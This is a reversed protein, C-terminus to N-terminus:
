HASIARPLTAVWISKKNSGAIPQKLLIENSDRSWEISANAMQSGMPTMQIINVNVQASRWILVHFVGQSDSFAIKQGDPSWEIVRGGGRTTLRRGLDSGDTGTVWVGQNEGTINVALLEGDPSWTAAMNTARIAPTLSRSNEGNASVVVVEGVKSNGSGWTRFYAIQTGDPSWVLNDKNDGSFTVRRYNGAMDVVMIDTGGFRDTLFAIENRSSWVPNYAWNIGESKEGAGEPTLNRQGSRGEVWITNRGGVNQTYAIYDRNHSWVGVASYTGASMRNDGNVQVEFAQIVGNNQALYLLSNDRSGWTANLVGELLHTLTVTSTPNNAAVVTPETIIVPNAEIESDSPRIPVNPEERNNTLEDLVDENNGIVGGGDDNGNTIDSYPLYAVVSETPENSEREQQNGEDDKGIELDNGEPRNEEGNDQDRVIMQGNGEPASPDTRAIEIAQYIGSIAFFAFILGAAIGVWRKDFKFSKKEEVTEEAASEEKFLDLEAFIQEQEDPDIKSPLNAMIKQAFDQPPEIHTITKELLDQLVRARDMDIQCADCVAMHSFLIHEENKSLEGDLYAYIMQKSEQCKM